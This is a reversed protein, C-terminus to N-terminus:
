RPCSFGVLRQAVASRPHSALLAAARSAAEQDRGQACLLEVEIAMRLDIFVGDPFDRLHEALLAGAANDDDRGLAARARDLLAVEAAIRDTALADIRANARRESSALVPVPRDAPLPRAPSPAPSAPRVAAAPGPAPSPAEVRPGDGPGRGRLPAVVVLVGAALLVTMVAGRVSLLAALGASSSGLRPLLLLWGRQAAAQPPNDQARAAGLGQELQQPALDRALHERALRVRSYVTSIPVGLEAAIEPGSMGLLEAMEFAVRLRPDLRAILGEIQQVAVLHEQPADDHPRGANAMAAVRRATRSATRRYRSAIRRTVAYLWARPSVEYRLHDLRRFATLFVEQVADEVAPSPVGLRRAAAWVFAFELRYIASFQERPDM